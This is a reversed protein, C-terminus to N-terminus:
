ENYSNILGEQSDQHGSRQVKIDLNNKETKNPKLLSTLSEPDSTTTTKTKMTDNSPGSNGSDKSVGSSRTVLAFKKVLSTCLEPDMMNLKPEDDHSSAAQSDNLTNSSQNRNRNRKPKKSSKSQKSNQESRNQCSQKSKTTTGKVKDNTENSSDSSELYARQKDTKGDKSSKQPGYDYLDIESGINKKSKSYKSMEETPLLFSVSNRMTPRNLNEFSQTKLIPTETQRNTTQVTPLQIKDVEPQADNLDLQNFMLDDSLDVVLEEEEM